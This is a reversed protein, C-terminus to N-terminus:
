LIVYKKLDEYCARINEIEPLTECESELILHLYKEPATNLIAEWDNEDDADGLTVNFGKIGGYPKM